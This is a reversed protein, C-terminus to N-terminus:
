AAEPVVGWTRALWREPTHESALRVGLRQGNRVPELRLRAARTSAEEVPVVFVRDIAPCFVGFVDARGRYDLRGRGHDTSATNFVVCGDRLRGSKCQVRAFRGDNLDVLLDYPADGAFPLSVTLGLATLEKLVAAETLEGRTAM